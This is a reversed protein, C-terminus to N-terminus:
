DGGGGGGGGEDQFHKGTYKGLQKRMVYSSPVGERKRGQEGGERGGERGGEKGELRGRERKREFYYDGHM